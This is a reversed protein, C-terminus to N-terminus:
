VRPARPMMFNEAPVYFYSNDPTAIGCYMNYWGVCSTIIGLYGGVKRINHNGTFAAITLLLQFLNIGVFLLFLGITAKMTCLLLLFSLILWGLLFFGEASRWEDDTYSARIGFQDTKLCGYSFWFGSFGGLTVAAFTGEVFLAVIGAILEVLGGLFFAPGIMVRPNTLGRVEANILSVVLVCYSFTALGLPVPNGISKNKPPSHIGPNLTGGFANLLECPTDCDTPVIPPEEFHIINDGSESTSVKLFYRRGKSNIIVPEDGYAELDIEM